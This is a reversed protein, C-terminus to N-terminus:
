VLQFALDPLPKNRRFAAGERRRANPNKFWLHDPDVCISLSSSSM